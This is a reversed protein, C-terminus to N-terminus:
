NFNNNYSEFKILKHKIYTENDHEDKCEICINRCCTLCFYKFKNQHKTCLLGNINNNKKKEFDKTSSSLYNFLSYNNDKYIFKENEHFFDEILIKKNNICRCTMKIYKKDSFEIFPFCSCKSCIYHTEPIEPNIDSIISTNKDYLSSKSIDSFEFDSNDLEKVLNYAMIYIKLKM